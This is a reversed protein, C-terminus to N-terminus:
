PKMAPKSTQIKSCRRNTTIKPEPLSVVSQSALPMGANKMPVHGEVQEEEDSELLAWFRGGPRTHVMPEM